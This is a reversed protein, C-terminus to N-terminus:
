KKVTKAKMIKKSSLKPKSVIKIQKPLKTEPKAKKSIAKQKKPKVIPEEKIKKKAEVLIHEKKAPATKPKNKARAKELNKEFNTPQILHELEKLTHKIKILNEVEHEYSSVKQLTDCVDKMENIRHQNIKLKNTNFSDPNKYLGHQMLELDEILIELNKKIVVKINKSFDDTLKPYLNELFEAIKKLQKHIKEQLTWVKETYFAHSRLPKSTPLSYNIYKETPQYTGIKGM